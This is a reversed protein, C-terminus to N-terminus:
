RDGGQAKAQAETMEYHYAEIQRNVWSFAVAEAKEAPAMRDFQWPSVGWFRAADLECYRWTPTPERYPRKRPKWGALEPPTLARM